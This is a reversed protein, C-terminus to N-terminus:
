FLNIQKFFIIQTIGNMDLYLCDIKHINNESLYYTSQPYKKLLWKAFGPVGM